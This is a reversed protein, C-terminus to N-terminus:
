KYTDTSTAGSKLDANAAVLAAINAMDVTTPEVPEVPEEGSEGEYVITLSAIQVNGNNGSEPNKINKLVYTTGAAKVEPVFDYTTGNTNCKNYCDYDTANGTYLALTANGALIGGAPTTISIKQIAKSVTFTIEAKSKVAMMYESSSAKFCQVLSLDVGLAESTWKVATNSAGGSATALGPITMGSGFNQTGAIASFLTLMCAFTLLLKKM